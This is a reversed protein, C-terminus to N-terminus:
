FPVVFQVIDENKIPKIVDEYRKKNLGGPELTCLTDIWFTELNLRNIKDQTYSGTTPVQEIPILDYDDLSPEPM